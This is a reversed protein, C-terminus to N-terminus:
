RAAPYFCEVAISSSRILKMLPHSKKVRDKKKKRRTEKQKLDYRLMKSNPSSPHLFLWKESAPKGTEHKTQSRMRLRERAATVTSHQHCHVGPAGGFGQREAGRAQGPCSPVM